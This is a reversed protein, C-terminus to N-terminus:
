KELEQIDGMLIKPAIVLIVLYALVLVPLTIFLDRVQRMVNERERLRNRTGDAQDKGAFVECESRCSDISYEVDRDGVCRQHFRPTAFLHAALM